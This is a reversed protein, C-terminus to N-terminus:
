KYGLNWDFNSDIIGGKAFLDQPDVAVNKAAEQEAAAKHAEEAAAMLMRKFVNASATVMMKMYQEDNVAHERIAEVFSATIGDSIKQVDEIPVQMGAPPQEIFDFM